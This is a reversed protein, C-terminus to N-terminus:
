QATQFNSTKLHEKQIRDSECAIEVVGFDIPVELIAECQFSETGRSSSAKAGCILCIRLYKWFNWGIFEGLSFQSGVM